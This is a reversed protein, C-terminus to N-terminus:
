GGGGAAKGGTGLTYSAPHAGPGIQVPASFRAGMPIRDVSQGARLRSAVTTTSLGTSVCVKLNLLQCQVPTVRLV